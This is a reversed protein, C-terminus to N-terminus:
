CIFDSNPQTAPGGWAGAARRAEAAGKWPLDTGTVTWANLTLHQRPILQLPSTVTRFHNPTSFKKSSTVNCQCRPDVVPASKHKTSLACPLLMAVLHRTCSVVRNM